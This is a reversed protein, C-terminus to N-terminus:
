VTGGPAWPGWSRHDGGTRHGTSLAPDALFGAAVTHPGGPSGSGGWGVPPSTPLPSHGLHHQALLSLRGWGGCTRPHGCDQASPAPQSEGDTPVAPSQHDNQHSLAWFSENGHPRGLLSHPNPPTPCTPTLRHRSSQFSLKDGRRWGSGGESGQRGSGM